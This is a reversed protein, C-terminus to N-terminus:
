ISGTKALFQLCSEVTPTYTSYNHGGTPLVLSQVGPVSSTAQIMKSSDAYAAGPSWSDTDQKSVVILLNTKTQPAQEVLWIPSNENRLRQSGGFLDGTTPDTEGDFYGGVSVAANFETRNRLMVKAACFGGTSFGMASWKSGSPEVRFKSLVTQRVTKALWTEAQPGNPIDTCETDRPPAIMIPPFVAVFPKVKKTDIEHSAYSPFDFAHMTDQPNSPQGPLVMVVPFKTSQNAPDDYEKPLWVLMAAQPAPGTSPGPVPATISVVRGQSGDAAVLGATDITAPPPAPVGLLDDWGDYFGFKNNAYLGVAGIALVQCVLVGVLRLLAGGVGAPRMRWTIILAIPALVALVAVLALLAPSTLSM